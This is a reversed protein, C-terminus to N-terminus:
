TSMSSSIGLPTSGVRVSGPKAIGYMKFQEYQYSISKFVLKCNGKCKTISLGSEIVMTLRFSHVAHPTLDGPIELLCHTQKYLMKGQMCKEKVAFIIIFSM